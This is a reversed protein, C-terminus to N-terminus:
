FNVKVGLQFRRTNYQASPKLFNPNPNALDGAWTDFNTNNSYNFINFAEGIIGLHFGGGVSPDWEARLDVSRYAFQKIGLFVQKPPDFASPVAADCGQPVRCDFVYLPHGSSLTIISSVTVGAGLGVTGNMIIKHKEAEINRFTSFEPPLSDFAFAVGEDTSASQKADTYTYAFDFGWRSDTTYPKDLTLMVGDYWTRRTDFSRMVFGYGNLGVSNGWRQAFTTGPPLTGFSWVMGNAGRVNSYTLGGIWDGFQQRAGINWQTSRPVHTNNALLNIEHGQVAGSAILGALGAASQYSPNWLIQPVASCNPNITGVQSPDNTFCFVYQGWTNKWEEDYMDNLPVRDYYLGWGGHVVTRGNGNVDWSFGLRPQFEKTYSKRNNGTSIYDNINFIDTDCWTTKGGVPQSFTRCTNQLASVVSAPTVWKNNLGNTEYDWRIGANVTLNSAVKWDDQAYLGYQNNDYKNVPDGFGYWAKFPYQWNQDPSFDFEPNFFAAHTADYKMLNVLLGAKMTHSGHWETFYTYDDRLSTKTQKFDQRFTAGGVNLLGSYNLFPDSSSAAGQIWEMTQFNLSGEN